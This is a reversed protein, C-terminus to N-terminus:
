SLATILDKAPVEVEVLCRVLCPVLRSRGGATGSFHMYSSIIAALTRVRKHACVTSTPGNELCVPLCAPLCVSLCAHVLLV